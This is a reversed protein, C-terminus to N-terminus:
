YNQSNAIGKIGGLIKVARNEQDLSHDAGIASFLVNSKNVSFELFPIM